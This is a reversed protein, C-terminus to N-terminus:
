PKVRKGKPVLHEHILKAAAARGKWGKIEIEKKGFRVVEVFFAELEARLSTTLRVDMIGEVDRALRRCIIRDNEGGSVM